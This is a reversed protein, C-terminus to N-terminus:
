PCTAFANTDQIPQYKAGQPNDYTKMTGNTTDTVRLTVHVDTLGGAFM